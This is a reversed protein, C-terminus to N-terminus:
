GFVEVLIDYKKRTAEDPICNLDCMFFQWPKPLEGFERYYWYILFKDLLRGDVGRYVGELEKGGNSASWCTIAVPKNNVLFTHYDCHEAPNECVGLQCECGLDRAVSKVFERTERMFRNNAYFVAGDKKVSLAYLCNLTGSFTIKGKIRSIRERLKQDLEELEEISYERFTDVYRVADVSRPFEIRDKILDFLNNPKVRLCSERRKGSAVFEWLRAEEISKGLVIQSRSCDWFEGGPLVSLVEIGAICSHLYCPESVRIGAKEFKERVKQFEELSPRALDPKSAPMFMNVNVYKVGLRKCLSIVHEAKDVNEKFVTYSLSPTIGRERLMEIGQVAADYVGSGRLWDHFEQDGDLSVQIGRDDPSFLDICDGILTGNTAMAVSPYYLRYADLIEAFNRHLLPEGGSLIFTKVNHLSADILLDTFLDLSMDARENGELDRLYCHRCRLNCRTTVHVDLIM